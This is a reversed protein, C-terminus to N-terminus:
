GSLWLAKKLEDEMKNEHHSDGDYPMYAAYSTEAGM